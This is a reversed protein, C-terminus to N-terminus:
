QRYKNWPVWGAVRVAAWMPWRKYWKVGLENMATLFLGDAVARSVGGVRYLYDHLVAARNYKGIKSFVSQARRPISALDCVFGAPVIYHAGISVDLYELDRILRVQYGNELFEVQLTNQFM